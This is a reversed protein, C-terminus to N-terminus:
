LFARDLSTLFQVGPVVKQSLREDNTIFLDITAEAACALQMADPARISRDQRIGAYRRAAAHDFPVVVAGSALASEYARQLEVNGAEIPKVLVEALTLASTYLDDGRALM